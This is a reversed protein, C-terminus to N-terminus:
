TIECNSSTRIGQNNSSTKTKKKKIKVQSLFVGFPTSNKAWTMSIPFSWTKEVDIGGLLEEAYAMKARDSKMAIAM